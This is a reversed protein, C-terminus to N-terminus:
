SRVRVRVRVWQPGNRYITMGLNGCEVGGAMTLGLPFVGTRREVKLSYRIPTRFRYWNECLGLKIECRYQSFRPEALHFMVQHTSSISSSLLSFRHHWIVCKRCRTRQRQLPGCFFLGSYLLPATWQQQLVKIFFLWVATVVLCIFIDILLILRYFTV